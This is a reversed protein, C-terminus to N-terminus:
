VSVRHVSGGEPRVEDFGLRQLPRGAGRPEHQPRLIRLIVLALGASLLAGLVYLTVSTGLLPLMGLGAVLLAIALIRWHPNTNVVM